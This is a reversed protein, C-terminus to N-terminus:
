AAVPAAVGQKAREFSTIVYHVGIIWLAITEGDFLTLTNELMWSVGVHNLVGIILAILMLAVSTWNTLPNKNRGMGFYINTAAGLFFVIAWFYHLWINFYYPCVVVGLLGFGAIISFWSALRSARDMIEGYIFGNLIMIMSPVTLLMGFIHADNMDVFQSVSPRIPDAASTFMRAFGLFLFFLVVIAFLNTCFASGYPWFRNLWYYVLGILSPVVLMIGTIAACNYLWTFDNPNLQAQPDYLTGTDVVILFFPIGMCFAAFAREAWGFLKLSQGASSVNDTFDM